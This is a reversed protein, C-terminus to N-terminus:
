DCRGHSCCKEEHQACGLYQCRERQSQTEYYPVPIEEPIDVPLCLLSVLELAGLSGATTVSCVRWRREVLRASLVFFIYLTPHFLKTCYQALALRAGNDRVSSASMCQALLAARFPQLCEVMLDYRAPIREAAMMCPKSTESKLLICRKFSTNRARFDIAGCVAM